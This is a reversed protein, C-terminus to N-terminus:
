VEEEKIIAKIIGETSSTEAVSFQSVGYKQLTEATISGICIVKSNESLNYGNDFFAKVGSSSAFTIYDSQIKRKETDISQVDYIKVEDYDIHNDKLMDTLVKSGQEARLILLRDNKLVTDCLLKGLAESTYRDPMIEPFIGRKALVEATGSGIVAFKIKWLSRIDIRYERLRKLFIEAGNISTLVIVSYLNLNELANELEINDKYEVIDLYALREVIAGRYELASSLKNVFRATGTVTVTKGALLRNVTPLFDFAATKGIVIVAPSPINEAKQCIDGLTSKVIVQKSSAGNSIVAVPINKDMGNLILGSSIKELNKLGMLFVLTGDLEAYVKMNNESFDDATHGTIIHVSRSVRRHTVPIGALEPVAIASSIGPIIDYLIDNEQLVAIEEGGRGFVFPDGGKLRVVNKGEKAKSVLLFNIKEQTESHQGCRKGVNIKEASVPAFALLRDDILDDYIVVDCEELIKKGRLTILDYDGCGGGVLYVTGNFNVAM